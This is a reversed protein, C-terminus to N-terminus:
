ETTALEKAWALTDNWWGYLALDILRALNADLGTQKCAEIAAETTDLSYREQAPVYPQERLKAALLTTEAILRTTIM